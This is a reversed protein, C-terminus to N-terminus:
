FAIEAIQEFDLRFDDEEVDLVVEDDLLNIDGAQVGRDCLSRYPCYVCRREDETLPFDDGDLRAAIEELLGTLYAEDSAYARADYPLIEPDHPFDTFWYRMEVQEPALAQGGNLQAGARVLLYRYVRTQLRGALRPGPTRRLSTKWDFILGRGEPTVLVLDYKAILRQGALPASLTVEPYRTGPMAAPAHECYHAWWRSLDADQALRALQAEPIGLLAQQVMRHFRQGLQVRREHEAIPEAEAAPWMVGLLYRLQFRRHCDVYDQLSGQSFQFGQPLTM